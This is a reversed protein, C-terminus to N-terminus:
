QFQTKASLGHTVTAALFPQWLTHAATSLAFSATAALPELALYSFSSLARPLPLPPFSAVSSESNSSGASHSQAALDSHSHAANAHSDSGGGCSGRRVGLTRTAAAYPLAASHSQSSRRSQPRSLSAPLSSQLLSQSCTNNVDTALMECSAQARGSSILAHNTAGINSRNPTTDANANTCLRAIYFVIWKVTLVTVLWCLQCLGSLFVIVTRLWGSARRSPLSHPLHTISTNTGGPHSIPDHTLSPSSASPLVQDANAQANHRDSLLQSSM